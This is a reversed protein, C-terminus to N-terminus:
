SGSKMVDRIADRARDVTAVFPGTAMKAAPSSPANPHPRTPATAEAARFAKGMRQLRDADVEARLKPHEEQEELGAHRIVDEKLRAFTTDFEPSGTGMDQLKALMEEGQHEEELRHEMQIKAGAKELLPHVLEQEATEHVILKRVLSDFAEQKQDGQASEVQTFLSKIEAHDKLIEDVVDTDNVESTM